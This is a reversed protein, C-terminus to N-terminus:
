NMEKKEHESFSSDLARHLELNIETRLNQIKKIDAETKLQQVTINSLSPYLNYIPFASKKQLFNEENLSISYFNQQKLHSFSDLQMNM